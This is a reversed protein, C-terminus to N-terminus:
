LDLSREAQDWDSRECSQVVEMRRCYTRGRKEIWSQEHMLYDIVERLPFCRERCLGLSCSDEGGFAPLNM